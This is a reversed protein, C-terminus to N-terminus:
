NLAVRQHKVSASAQDLVQMSLRAAKLTEVDRALMRNKARPASWSDHQIPPPATYTLRTIRRAAPVAVTEAAVVATDTAAEAPAPEEAAALVVTQVGASCQNDTLTVRGEQDVCKVIDASGAFAASAAFLATFLLSSRITQRNM